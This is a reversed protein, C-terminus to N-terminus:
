VRGTNPDREIRSCEGAFAQDASQDPRQQKLCVNPEDQFRRASWDGQVAGGEM